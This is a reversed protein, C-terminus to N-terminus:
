TIVVHLQVEWSDDLTSSVPLLAWPVCKRLMPAAIQKCGSPVVVLAAGHISIRIEEEPNCMSCGFFGRCIPIRFRNCSCSFEHRFFVSELGLSGVDGAYMQLILRGCGNDDIIEESSDGKNTSHVDGECPQRSSNQVAARASQKSSRYLMPWVDKASLMAALFRM